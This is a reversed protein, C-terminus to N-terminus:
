YSKIEIGGFICNGELVLTKNPMNLPNNQIPRKDEIGGLFVSAESKIEWNAPIILVVGGFVVNVDLKIRGEFDAQSLNIDVGGFINNIEGGKFNKSLVIKKVGGMFNNIDIVDNNHNTTTGDAFVMNETNSQQANNINDNDQVYGDYRNYRRHYRSYRKYNSKPKFIFYVGLLIIFVPWAYPRINLEPIWEGFLFIVGIAFPFIWAINRFQHKFGMYLGIVILLTKWSFLWHPFNAGLTRALFLTGIIILIGGGIVKGRKEYSEYNNHNSKNKDEPTYPQTEM